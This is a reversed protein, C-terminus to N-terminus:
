YLEMWHSVIGEWKQLNELEIEMKTPEEGSSSWRQWYVKMRRLQSIILNLDGEIEEIVANSRANAKRYGLRNGREVQTQLGDLVERM